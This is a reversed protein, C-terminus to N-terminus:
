GANSPFVIDSNILEVVNITQIPYKNFSTDKTKEHLIGRTTGVAIMGLHAAFNKPIILGNITKLHKDFEDIHIGTHIAVDIKLAVEKEELLEYHFITRIMKADSDIGFEFSVSFIMKDENIGEKLIAFQLTEIHQIRFPILM